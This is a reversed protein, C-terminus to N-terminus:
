RLPIPLHNGHLCFSPRLSSAGDAQARLDSKASERAAGAVDFSPSVLACFCKDNIERNSCIEELMINRHQDTCECPMMRRAGDQDKKM